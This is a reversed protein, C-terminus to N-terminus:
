SQYKAIDHWQEGALRASHLYHHECLPQDFRGQEAAEILRVCLPDLTDHEDSNPRHSSQKEMGGTFCFRL